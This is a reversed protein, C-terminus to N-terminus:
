TNPVYILDKKKEKLSEELLEITPFKPKPNTKLQSNYRTLSLLRPFPHRRQRHITLKGPAM